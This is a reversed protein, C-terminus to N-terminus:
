AAANTGIYRAIRDRVNPQWDVRTPEGAAARQGAALLRVCYFLGVGGYQEPITRTGDQM